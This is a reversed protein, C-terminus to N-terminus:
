LWLCHQYSYYFLYSRCLPRMCVKNNSKYWSPALAHMDRKYEIPCIESWENEDFKFIGCKSTYKLVNGGCFKADFDQQIAIVAGRDNLYCMSLFQQYEELIGAKWKWINNKVKIRRFELYNYDIDLGQLKLRHLIGKDEYVIGHSGCYVFERIEKAM